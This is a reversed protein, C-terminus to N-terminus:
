LKNIGNNGKINQHRTMLKKLTNVTMNKWVIQDGIMGEILVSITVDNNENEYEDLVIPEQASLSNKKYFHSTVPYLNGGMFSVKKNTDKESKEEMTISRAKVDESNILHLPEVLFPNIEGSRKLFDVATKLQRTQIFEM